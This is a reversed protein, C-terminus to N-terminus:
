GPGGDDGLHGPREEVDADVGDLRRREPGERDDEGLVADRLLGVLDVLRGGADGLLDRSPVRGRLTGAPHDAGDARAGLEGREARDGEALQTLAVPGLDLAEE